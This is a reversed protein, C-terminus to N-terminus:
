PAHSRWGASLVDHVDGVADVEEGLVPSVRTDGDLVDSPHNLLQDLRAPDAVRACIARVPSSAWFGHIAGM